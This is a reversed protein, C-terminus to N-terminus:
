KEHKPENAFNRFAFILKAMDTQHDTWGCPVVWNGGSLNEHFKLYSYKEFM